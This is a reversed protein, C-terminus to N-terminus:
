KFQTGSGRERMNGQFLVFIDTGSQLKNFSFNQFLHWSSLRPAFLILQYLFYISSSRTSQIGKRGCNKSLSFLPSFLLNNRPSRSKKINLVEAVMLLTPMQQTRFIQINKLDKVKLHKRLKLNDKLFIQYLISDASAFPYISVIM